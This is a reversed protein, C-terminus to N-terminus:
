SLDMERIVYLDFGLRANLDRTIEDARDRSLTADVNWEEPPSSGVVLYVKM